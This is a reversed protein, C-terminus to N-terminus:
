TIHRNQYCDWFYKKVWKLCMKSGKWIYKQSISAFLFIFIFFNSFILEIKSNKMDFNPKWSFRHLFNKVWKTPCKQSISAFIFIFIFFIHFFSSSIQTRWILNLSYQIKWLFRLFVNLSIKVKSPRVLVPTM